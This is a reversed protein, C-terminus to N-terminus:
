GWFAAVRQIVWYSAVTGICYAPAVVTWRPGISRPLLRRVLAATGLVATIFLLQGIEVGVNFFLLALPIANQPLGV